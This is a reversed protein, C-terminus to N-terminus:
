LLSKIKEIFNKDWTKFPTKALASNKYAVIHTIEPGLWSPKEFKVDMNKLEIEAVVLGENDDKFVDVEWYSKKKKSDILTANIYNRTKNIPFFNLSKSLLVLREYKHIKIPNEFEDNELGKITLYHDLGDCQRVRIAPYTSIYYQDIQSTKVVQQKWDDNTILFRREYEKHKNKKAM